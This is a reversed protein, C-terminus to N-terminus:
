YKHKLNLSQFDKYIQWRIGIHHIVDNLSLYSFLSLFTTKIQGGKHWEFLTSSTPKMNKYLVCCTLQCEKKKRRTAIPVLKPQAATQRVSPGQPAEAVASTQLSSLPRSARQGPPQHVSASAPSGRGPWALHTKEAGCYVPGAARVGRHPSELGPPEYKSMPRGRQVRSRKLKLKWVRQWLWWGTVRGNLNYIQKVKVKYFAAYRGSSVWSLSGVGEINVTNGPDINNSCM